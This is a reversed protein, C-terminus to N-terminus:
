EEEKEENYLYSGINELKKNGQLDESIRGFDVIGDDPIQAMAQILKEFSYNIDDVELKEIITGKEMGQKITIKDKLQDFSREEEELIGILLDKGEKKVLVNGSEIGGELVLTDVGASRHNNNKKGEESSGNDHYFDHIVDEGDGRSFIYTDNGKGGLLEDRGLGGTIVDNGEGGIVTDDGAGASLLDNGRGGDLLDDGELTEINNHRDTGLLIISDGDGKFAELEDGLSLGLLHGVEMKSGDAFKLSEVRLKKDFWKEVTIRDTLAEGGGIEIILNEGEKVVSIDGPSINKGFIISDVGGGYNEGYESYNREEYPSGKRYFGDYIVDSGDGRNYIYSDNGFGGQLTDDGKGGLIVNAGIDGILNDSENSGTYIAQPDGLFSFEEKLSGIFAEYAPNENWKFTKAAGTFEKYFDIGGIVDADIIDRMYRDVGQFDFGEGTNEVLYAVVKMQSQLLLTYYVTDFLNDYSRELLSAAVRNPNGGSVGEFEEGMFSELVALKRGDINGGRSSPDIDTSGTWVELIESLIEKRKEIDEEETFRQVLVKLGEDQLMSYRLSYVTGYGRFDPLFAIDLNELLQERIDEKNERIDNGETDLTDREFLLEGVNGISGDDKFFTGERVVTNNGAIDRNVTKNELDIGSIGAEELSILEGEDTFGDSDSDQWIKLEAYREDESNIIGDSNSDLEALAEFGTTAISGDELTTQDGFLEGGDNIIGDSDRDFVLLGDDKNVWATEEAFGNRDLDFKAGNGLPDIEIGDGDLDMVLPDRRRVQATSASDYLVKLNQFEEKGTLYPPFVKEGFGYSEDPESDILGYYGDLSHGSFPLNVKENYVYTTGASEGLFTILDNERIYNTIISDYVEKNEKYRKLMQFGEYGPLIGPSSFTTVEGLRSINETSLAVYQALAGGLSHGTLNIKSESYKSAIRNYFESAKDFQGDYNGTFIENVGTRILEETNETGRYSITIENGNRLAIAEMGTKEDYEVAIIEIGNLLDEKNENILVIDENILINGNKDEIYEGNKDKLKWREDYINIFSNIALSKGEKGNIDDIEDPSLNLYVIDSLLLSLRRDM